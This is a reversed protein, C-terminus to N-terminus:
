WKRKFIKEKVIGSHGRGQGAQRQHDNGASSVRYTCRVGIGM